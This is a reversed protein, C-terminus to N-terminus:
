STFPDGIKYDVWCNAMKYALLTNWLPQIEIGKPLFGKPWAGTEMVNKYARLHKKDNPDFFEIITM